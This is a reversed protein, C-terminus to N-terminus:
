WRSTIPFCTCLVGEGFASQIKQHRWGPMGGKASFRLTVMPEAARAWSGQFPTESKNPAMPGLAKAIDGHDKQQHRNKSHWQDKLFVVRRSIWTCFLIINPLFISDLYYVYRCGVGGRLFFCFLLLDELFGWNPRETRRSFIGQDFGGMLEQGHILCQILRLKQVPRNAVPLFFHGHNGNLLKHDWSKSPLM